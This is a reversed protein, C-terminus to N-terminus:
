SALPGDGDHPAHRGQTLARSRGIRECGEERSPGDHAPRTGARHIRGPAPRTVEFTCFICGRWFKFDFLDRIYTYTFLVVAGCASVRSRAVVVFGKLMLTM